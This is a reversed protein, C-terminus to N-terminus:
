RSGRVSRRRIEFVVGAVVLLVLLGGTVWGLDGVADLIPPGAYYAGLGIGVTWLIASVLNVTMYLPTPVRHIGAAWSPAVVIAVIAYRRFVEEGREVARLRLGRLPGPATIVARGAIRGILWGAIGGGTAAAWAVLLVADISLKHEAALIGAAILVPEGPGFFGIWSAGCALALTAYDIPSGHFPHHVHLALGFAPLLTLAPGIRVHSPLYRLSGVGGATCGPGAFRPCMALARARFKGWSQSGCSSM